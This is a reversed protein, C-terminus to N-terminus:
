KFRMRARFILSFLSMHMGISMSEIDFTMELCERWSASRLHWVRCGFDSNAERAFCFSVWWLCQFSFFGHLKQAPMEFEKL